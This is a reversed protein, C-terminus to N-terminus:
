PRVTHTRKRTEVLYNLQAGVLITISIINLWLMTIFISAISGYVLSHNSFHAIYFNFALTTIGWAAITLLAGPLLAILRLKKCSSLRYILIVAFLLISLSLAIGGFGFLTELLVGTTIYNSIASYILNGYIIVLLSSIIAFTLVMVMLLSYLWKIIVNRTDKQRYVRNIGLIVANFGLAVTWLSLLLSVSLVGPNRTDVVENIVDNVMQAIQAPLTASVESMLYESDINFYGVLSILFILFPFLAFIFRYTLTTALPFIGNDLCGKYLEWAFGGFRTTKFSEKFRSIRKLIKEM